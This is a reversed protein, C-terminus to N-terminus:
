DHTRTTLYRTACRHRTVQRSLCIGRYSDDHQEGTRCCRLARLFVCLCVFLCPCVCVCTRHSAGASPQEALPAVTHRGSNKNHRMATHRIGCLIHTMVRRQLRRVQATAGTGTRTDIHAHHTRSLASPQSPLRQSEDGPIDRCRALAGLRITKQSM